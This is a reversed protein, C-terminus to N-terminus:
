TTSRTASVAKGILSFARWMRRIMASASFRRRQAAALIEDKRAWGEETFRFIAEPGGVFGSAPYMMGARALERYAEKNAATVEVREGAVLHRLLSLASESIRKDSENM